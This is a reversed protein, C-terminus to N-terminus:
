NGDIPETVAPDGDPVIDEIPKIPEVPAIVPEKVGLVSCQALMAEYKELRDLFPQKSAEIRVLDNQIGEIEHKIEAVTYEQSVETVIGVKEDSVKIYTAAFGEFCVLILVLIM